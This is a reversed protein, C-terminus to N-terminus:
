KLLNEINRLNGEPSSYVQAYLFFIYMYFNQPRFPFLHHCPNM